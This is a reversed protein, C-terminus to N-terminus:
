SPDAGTRLFLFPVPDARYFLPETLTHTASFSLAIQIYKFIEKHGAEHDTYCNTGALYFISNPNKIFSDAAARVGM